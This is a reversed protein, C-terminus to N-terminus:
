CSKQSRENYTLKEQGQVEYAHSKVINVRRNAAEKMQDYCGRFTMWSKQSYCM